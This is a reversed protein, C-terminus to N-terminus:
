TNFNKKNIVHTLTNVNVGRIYIYIYKSLYISLYIIYAVVKVLKRPCLYTYNYVTDAVRLYLLPFM